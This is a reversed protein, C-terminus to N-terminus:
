GGRGSGLFFRLDDLLQAPDSAVLIPNMRLSAEIAGSSVCISDCGRVGSRLREMAPSRWAARLGGDRVNLTTDMIDYCPFLNGYPDINGFLYGAWCQFAARSKGGRSAMLTFRRSNTHMGRARAAATASVISQYVAEPDAPELPVCSEDGFRWRHQLNGHLPLFSIGGIGLEDALEVMRGLCDVNHSGVVCNIGVSISPRRESLQRVARIVGDHSGPGRVRDNVVAEPHDLSFIITVDRGDPIAQVVSEDILTGNSDIHVNLGLSRAFAIIEIFDPRIFPEGGGFSVIRTKLDACDRLISKVEGTSLEPGMDPYFRPYGCYQCSLNCRRTIEFMLIPMTVPPRGSVRALQLDIFELGLLAVQGVMGFYDAIRNM